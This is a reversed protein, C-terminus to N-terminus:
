TRQRRGRGASSESPLDGSSECPERAPPQLAKGSPRGSPIADCVAELLTGLLEDVMSPACSGMLCVQLWNRELLYESRYSLLCGARALSEGIRLSDCTAPLQLTTVAPFAAANAVPTLGLRRLGRRLRSSLRAIQRFHEEGGFCELAAKLAYLLNSSLTFPVGEQAAYYSLDLYRPL